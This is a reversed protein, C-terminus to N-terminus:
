GLVCFIYAVTTFRVGPTIKRIRKQLKMRPIRCGYPLITCRAVVEKRDISSWKKGILPRGSKGTARRCSFNHVEYM